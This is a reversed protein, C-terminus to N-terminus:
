RVGGGWLAVRGSRRNGDVIVRRILELEGGGQLGVLVVLLVGSFQLLLRRQLRHEEVLILWDLLRRLIYVHGVGERLVEISSSFGGDRGACFVDM